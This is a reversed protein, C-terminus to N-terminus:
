CGISFVGLRCTIWVYGLAVRSYDNWAYGMDRQPISQRKEIDTSAPPVNLNGPTNSLLEVLLGGFLPWQSPSAIYPFVTRTFASSYSFARNPNSSTGYSSDLYQNIAGEIGEATPYQAAIPCKAPGVQACLNSFGEFLQPVDAFAEDLGLIPLYQSIV